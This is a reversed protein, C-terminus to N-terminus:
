RGAPVTAPVPASTRVPVLAPMTMIPGCAAPVMPVPRPRPPRPPPPPEDLRDFWWQLSADCGDGAPIPAPDRCEAQGAPCRFHLHMHAAHAYWPRIRRLWARDAAPVELCLQRKIAANVLVRDIGPLEAALRLLTVHGPKWRSLDVGRQDPRVLGAPEVSDRAATSAFPRKLDLDLYVDANLGNQHSAHGRMPGGRANSVDNMLLTPLGAAQARAGLLKLSAITDPHGWFASRSARVTKLGPAESPLEVAGAICGAGSGGV